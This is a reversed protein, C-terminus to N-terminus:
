CNFGHCFFHGQIYQFLRWKVEKLNKCKDWTSLLVPHLISSIFDQITGAKLKIINRNQSPDSSASDTSQSPCHTLRIIVTLPRNSSSPLYLISYVGRQQLAWPHLTPLHTLTATTRSFIHRSVRVFVDVLFRFIKLDKVALILSRSLM